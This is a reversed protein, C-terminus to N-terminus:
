KSDEGAPRPGAGEVGLRLDTDLRLGAAEVLFTVTKKVEFRAM